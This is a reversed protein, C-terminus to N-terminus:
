ITAIEKKQFLSKKHTASVKKKGDGLHLFEGFLFISILFRM